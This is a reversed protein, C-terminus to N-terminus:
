AVIDVIQNVPQRTGPAQDTSPPPKMPVPPEAPLAQTAQISTAEQAATRAEQTINVKFAEQIVQANEQNLNTEAAQQNQGQVQPQPTEAIPRNATYSNTGQLSNIDM